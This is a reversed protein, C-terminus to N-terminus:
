SAADVLLQISQEFLQFLDDAGEGGVTYPMRIAKIGSRKELWKSAREPAYASRIIAIPKEAKVKNVLSALHAASPSVGPKPELNDSLKIGLWDRFYVWSRHHTVLSKGRLPQALEEWRAIAAQWRQAFDAYRRQYVDVNDADLQQLRQSLVEAVKLLRRPDLHIHPNGAAHIDGMSRDVYEPIELLQVHDTAMFHGAAGPRIDGNGTNRLLIPLWGVELDAGTCVLLDARSARAILSPRADIYHADQYANTATYINLSGDSLEELLSTWEPECSLVRLDAMASSSAFALLLAILKITNRLM